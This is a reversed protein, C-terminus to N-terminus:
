SGSKKPVFVLPSAREGVAPEVLGQDRIKVIEERELERQKSGARYLTSHVPPGNLFSLVILHKAVNNGGPHDDNMSENNQVMPNFAPKVTEYEASFHVKKLWHQDLLSM